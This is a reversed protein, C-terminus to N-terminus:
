AHHARGGRRRASLVLQLLDLLPRRRRRRRSRGRLLEIGDHAGRAPLRRDQLALDHRLHARLLRGRGVVGQERRPGRCGGLPLVACAACLPLAVSSGERERRGSAHRRDPAAALARGVALQGRAGREHARRRAEGRWPYARDRRGQEYRARRRVKRGRAAHGARVGRLAGVEGRLHGGHCALRWLSHRQYRGLSGM